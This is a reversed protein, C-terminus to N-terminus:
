CEEPQHPFKIDSSFKLIKQRTERRAMSRLFPASNVRARRLWKHALRPWRVWASWHPTPWWQVRRYTWLWWETRLCFNPVWFFFIILIWREAQEAYCGCARTDHIVMNQTYRGGGLSGDLNWEQKKATKSGIRSFHHFPLPAWYSCLWNSLLQYQNSHAMSRQSRILISPAIHPPTKQYRRHICVPFPLTM